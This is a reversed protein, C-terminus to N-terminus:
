ISLFPFFQLLTKRLQLLFVKDRIGSALRPPPSIQIQAQLEAYEAPTLIRGDIPSRVTLIIETRLIEEPIDAQPSLAMVAKGSHGSLGVLISTTVGLILLLIRKM